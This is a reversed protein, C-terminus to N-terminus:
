LTKGACVDEDSIVSVRMKRLARTTLGDGKVLTKSHTGDYIHGSGCSPSRSKLIAGTADVLRALRAVEDAGKVFQATVDDGNITIIRDRLLEAPDRPTSLGGMQEPCVPMWEKGELYKLVELVKNDSGDYRCGLGVLCSSVLIM